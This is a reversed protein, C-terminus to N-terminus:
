KNISFPENRMSTFIQSLYYWKWKGTRIRRNLERKIKDSAALQSKQDTIYYKDCKDCYPFYAKRMMIEGTTNDELKKYKEILEMGCIRCYCNYVGTISNDENCYKWKWIVDYFLDQTYLRYLPRKKKIMSLLTVILFLVLSYLLLRPTPYTSILYRWIAKLIDIYGKNSFLSVIGPLIIQAMVALIIGRVLFNKYWKKKSSFEM